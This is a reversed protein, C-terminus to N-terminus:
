VGGGQIGLDQLKSCTVCIMGVSVSVFGSEMNLQNISRSNKARYKSFKEGRM